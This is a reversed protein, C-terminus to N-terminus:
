KKREWVTIFNQGQPKYTLVSPGEVYNTASGPSYQDAIFVLNYNEQVYRQTWEFLEMESEKSFWLSIPIIVDVIYRPKKTEVDKIAEARMTKTFPYKLNIIYVVNHKTIGLTNTYLYIEPESGAVYIQDGLKMNRKLFDGIVKAEPFPNGGYGDHLIKDFDPKLYYSTSNVFHSIPIVLFLVGLINKLANSKGVLQELLQYTLCISLAIGPVFLIWYHGYFRYGPVIPLFSLIIFSYYVIKKDWSIKIFFGAVLGAFALVWFLLQEGRIKQFTNILMNIGDDFSIDVLYYKGPFEVMWFIMDKSLGQMQIWLFILIFPIFGGIAFAITEFIFKRLNKNKLWDILIWLAGFFCYFIGAQKILVSFGLMMGSFLLIWLNNKLKALTFLYLGALVFVLVFFEAQITFGYIQPNLFLLGGVPLLVMAMKKGFLNRFFLYFFLLILAYVYCFGKQLSLADYGFLKVMLGYVLFIGPPKMEYFDVYPKAGDVLWKGYMVYSGEDREMPIGLFNRRLFFLITITLGVLVYEIWPFRELLPKTVVKTNAPTIKKSESIKTQKKSM